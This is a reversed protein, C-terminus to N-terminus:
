IKRVSPYATQVFFGNGTVQKRLVIIIKRTKRFRLKYGERCFGFGVDEDFELSVVLTRDASPMTLWLAIDDLNYEDLLTTRILAEVTTRSGFFCSAAAKDRLLCCDRLYDVSKGIHADFTHGFMRQNGNFNTQIYKTLWKKANEKRSMIVEYKTKTNM